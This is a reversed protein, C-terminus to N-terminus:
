VVQGIRQGTSSGRGPPLNQLGHCSRRTCLGGRHALGTPEGRTSVNAYAWARLVRFLRTRWIGDSGFASRSNRRTQFRFIPELNAAFFRSLPNPTRYLLSAKLSHRPTFLDSLSPHSAYADPASCRFQILSQECGLVRM